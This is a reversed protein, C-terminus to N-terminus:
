PRRLLEMQNRSYIAQCIDMRTEIPAQMYRAAERVCELISNPDSRLKRASETFGECAFDPMVQVYSDIRCQVMPSQQAEGPTMTFVALAAFLWSISARM